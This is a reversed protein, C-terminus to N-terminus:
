SDRPGQPQWEDALWRIFQKSHGIHTKITHESYPQGHTGVTARMQQEWRELERWLDDVTWSAQGDAM